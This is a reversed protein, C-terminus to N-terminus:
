LQYYLSARAGDPWVTPDNNLGRPQSQWCPSFSILMAEFLNSLSLFKVLESM